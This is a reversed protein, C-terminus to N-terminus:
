HHALGALAAQVWAYAIREQELRLAPAIRDHRLDDYLGAEDPQLRGLERRTPTAEQGWLPRHAMLTARDMLLSRVHPFHGRLQNLIAFGHSDLDGWYFIDRERLWRAEALPEFGYGAGFIVLSDPIPPFALFNIENETIFVRRQPPALGAFQDTPVTLDSLGHLDGDLLRFRLLAPKARFGFRQEFGAVGGPATADIVDAPLILALLEALLARHREIFKSHVEPVDIQRLYLNSRPHAAIWGLVGLLRPWDDGHELVRLPRKALWDHLPPFAQAITGALARLRAAERRKGILALADAETDVWAAVPVQNRGLQRHNIEQFELRYGPKGATKASDSLARIWQRADDFRSALLSAGPGKLPIRWPYLAEGTLAASLLHGREWERLVRARLDAPTTWDTM